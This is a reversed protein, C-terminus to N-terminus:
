PCPVPQGPNGHGTAESPGPWPDLRHRPAILNVGAVGAGAVAILRLARRIGPLLITTATGVGGIWFVAAIVLLARAVGFGTM